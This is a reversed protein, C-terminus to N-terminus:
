LGQKAKCVRRMVARVRDTMAAAIDEESQAISGWRGAICKAPVKRCYALAEIATHEELYTNYFMRLNDRWCHILKCVSAFYRRGPASPNKFYKDALQLGKQVVLQVAHFVCDFEFFLSSPRPAVLCALHKRFLRQDSGSSCMRVM